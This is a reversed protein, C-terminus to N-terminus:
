LHSAVLHPMVAKNSRLLYSLEVRPTFATFSSIVDIVCIGVSWDPMDM